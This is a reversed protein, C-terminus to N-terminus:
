VNREEKVRAAYLLRRTNFGFDKYGQKIIGLYSPSPATKRHSPTMVYAMVSVPRSNVRVTFWEKRYLRPFGEYRDLAAEDGATVSWIGVPVSCGARPEINAVGLGRINSRFVLHYGELEAAGIKIAGPCRRIMQEVDLNSGYALYYKRM